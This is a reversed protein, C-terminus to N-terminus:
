PGFTLTDVYVRGNLSSAILLVRASTTGAPSTFSGSIQEWGSTTTARYQKVLDRRIVTSGNRWEVRVIFSGSSMQPINVWGSFSYTRGATLNDMRQSITTSTGTALFRGAFSGSHVAETSRTFISHTSWSDPRSDNNADLEFGPNLLLNGTSPISTPTRTPTPGTQPTNTPVITIPTSGSTGFSFTDVYVKGNLSNAVLLVRVRNTGAPAVFSGSIQEWGNTTTARYQKVLDRRIVTSGNRWEVRVAFTGSSMQPINVWGSISHTAGATVNDIRQSITTSTGSAAFRGAFSGSHVQENSRTFISHTTWSDPRSDNNADLEFGPNLLLNGTPPPVSTPTRTPTRTPTPNTGPTATNGPTSGISIEWWKGDNERPDAGNDVGRSVIYINRVAPNGSAPAYAVDSRINGGTGMFSADYARLLNGSPSTEGIYNESGQASVILLTGTDAKYGIGELDRFGKSATDWHTLAGDDGGGLVRNPGLPLVWVEADVGGAMFLTNNGYAVDELDTNVSRQTVTDDSTCYNGDPGLNIEYVSGSGSDSTIYIRNTEPNVALGTPENTFSTTSCTSLLNGSTTAGFVNAGVWYPPMEDVESDAVLLRNMQPWYDIGAPDPSSPNWAKNSTDVIKVLSAPLLQTGSPLAQSSVLALEVIRGGQAAPDESTTQGSDLLFLNMTAPDDTRDTSPAFLMSGTEQVGLSSLDFTAVVQGDGALEYLQGQAPNSAYLHGNGPNFALGRLQGPDAVGLDIRQVRGEQVAEGDDFRAGPGPQIAIIQGAGPNLIFLVGTNPDFSIGKADSLGIDQVDFRAAAASPLPRGNQSNVQALESRGPNLVFLSETSPDFAVNVPDEVAVDISIPTGPEEYMSVPTISGDASWVLFENAAPSFALGRPASIGFEETYISRVEWFPAGQEQASVSFKEPLLVPMAIVLIVFLRFLFKGSVHFM